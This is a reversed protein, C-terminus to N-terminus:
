GSVHPSIILSRLCVLGLVTCTCVSPYCYAFSLIRLSSCTDNTVTAVPTGFPVRHCYPKLKAKKEEKDSSLVVQLPTSEEEMWWVQERGLPNSGGDEQSKLEPELTGM